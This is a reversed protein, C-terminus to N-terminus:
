FALFHRRYKDGVALFLRKYKRIFQRQHFLSFNHLEAVRDLEILLRVATKDGIEQATAVIQRTVQLIAM